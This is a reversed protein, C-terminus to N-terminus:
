PTGGMRGLALPALGVRGKVGLKRYLRAALTAVTTRKVGMAKAIHELTADSLLREHLERERQSLSELSDRKTPVAMERRTRPERAEIYPLAHHDPEIPAVAFAVHTDYVPATGERDRRRADRETIRAMLDDLMTRITRLAQLDEPEAHLWYIRRDRSRAGLAPTRAVFARRIDQASRDEFWKGIRAHLAIHGLDQQNFLLTIRQHALAYGGESQAKTARLAHVMRAKTLADIAERIQKAPVGCAKTLEDLRMPAARCHLHKVIQMAVEDLLLDVLGPADIAFVGNDPDPLELAPKTNPM